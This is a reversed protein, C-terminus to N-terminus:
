CKVESKCRSNVDPVIEISATQLQKKSDNLEILNLSTPMTANAILIENRMVKKGIVIKSCNSNNNSNNSNASNNSNSNANIKTANKRCNQEFKEILSETLKGPVVPIPPTKVDENENSIHGSDDSCDSQYKDDRDSQLIKLSNPPSPIQPPAISIVSIHVNKEDNTKTSKVVTVKSTTTTKPSEISNCKKIIQKVKNKPIEAEVSCDMVLSKVVPEVIAVTPTLKPGSNPTKTVIVLTNQINQTIQSNKTIQQKQVSQSASDVVDISSNNAKISHVEITTSLNNEVTVCDSTSKISTVKPKVNMEEVKKLIEQGKELCKDLLLDGNDRSKRRIPAEVIKLPAAPPAPNLITNTSNSM